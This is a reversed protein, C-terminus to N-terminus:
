VMQLDLPLFAQDEKFKHCSNGNESFVGGQGGKSPPVLPPLKYRRNKSGLSSLDAEKIASAM